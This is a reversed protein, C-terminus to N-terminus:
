KGGSEVKCPRPMRPAGRAPRHGPRRWTHICIAKHDYPKTDRPKPNHDTVWYMDFGVLEDNPNGTFEHWKALHRELPTRFARNHDLRIRNFYDQRIQSLGLGRADSLDLDPPEGTFPDIRRGDITLADITIAGDTQIPNPAFMGWGQFIRLYHLTLQVPKPQTHKIPKPISKNENILQSVSCGIIWVLLAERSWRLVRQKIPSPSSLPPLAAAQAGAPTLGFWRSLRQANADCFAVCADLLGISAFRLPLSILRGAPLVTAVQWFARRGTTWTESGIKRTAFLHGDLTPTAATPSIFRLQETHDLRSLLRAWQFHAGSDSRCAVELTEHDGKWWRALLQWHAKQLLLTSWGIIFWSFPGLRMSLGFSAHLAMMLMMALPRSRLRWKPWVISVFIMAEVMLVGHTALWMGEYPLYDRFFVAFETIMRDLHLVHHVTEGRRWVGGYKNLVNFLYVIALNVVVIASILSYYPAILDHPRDRQNVKELSDEKRERYSRLLADVSFRRGTPLFIAWFAMLNVVVYGGNEVLVLRNDMSTVWLLSLVSMLRSRYGVMLLFYCIFSLAYAVHVEGITSFAHFLSFNHGGSPHFLHYHNSLIGENSYYQRATLWHRVCDITLLAGLVIRYFGVTRPDAQMYRERFWRRAVAFRAAFLRMDSKFFRWSFTGDRGPPKTVPTTM